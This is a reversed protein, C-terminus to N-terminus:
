RAGKFFAAIGGLKFMQISATFRNTLRPTVLLPHTRSNVDFPYLSRVLEIGRVISKHGHEFGASSISAVISLHSSAWDYETHSFYSSFPSLFLMSYRFPFRHGVWISLSSQEKTAYESRSLEKSKRGSGDREDHGFFDIVSITKMLKSEHPLDM